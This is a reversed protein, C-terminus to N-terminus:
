YVFPSCVTPLCYDSLPTTLTLCHPPSLFNLLFFDTDSDYDHTSDHCMSMLGGVTEPSELFLFCLIMSKSYHLVICYLIFDIRM